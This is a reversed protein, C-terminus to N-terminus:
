KRYNWRTFTKFKESIQSQVDITMTSNFSSLNSKELDIYLDCRKHIACLEEFSFDKIKTNHLIWKTPYSKGFSIWFNERLKKSENKSFM